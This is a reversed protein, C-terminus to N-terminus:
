LRFLPYHALAAFAVCARRRKQQREGDPRERRRHGPGLVPGDGAGDGVRRAEHQGADGDLRPAGGAARGQGGGGVAGALEGERPELRPGPLQREGQGAELGDHRPPTATPAPAVATSSTSIATSSASRTTTRPLRAWGRDTVSDCTGM